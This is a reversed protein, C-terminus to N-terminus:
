GEPTGPDTSGPAPGPQTGPDEGSAPAARGGKGHRSFRHRRREPRAPGEVPPAALDLVEADVVIEGREPAFERVISAVVPLDFTGYPGDRVELVEAAAVRYVDAVTGLATGDLGRVVAGIVEHWYAAGPPLDTSRDVDVELWADRLGEAATRNGIERFTLRWGPGDEVPHAASITLPRDTGEVRLVTGVAYREEPRDTLM